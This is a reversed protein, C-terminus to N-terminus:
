MTVGAVEAGRSPEGVFVRSRQLRDVLRQRKMEGTREVRIQSGTHFDLELREMLKGDFFVNGLDRREAIDRRERRVLHDQLEIVLQYKRDDLQQHATGTRLLSNDAVQRLDFAFHHLINGRQKGPLRLAHPLNGINGQHRARTDLRREHMLGESEILFRRHELEADFQGAYGPGELEYERLLEQVDQHRLDLQVLGRFLRAHPAKGSRREALSNEITIEFDRHFQRRQPDCNAVQNSQLGPRYELETCRNAIGPHQGRAPLDQIFGNWHAIACLSRCLQASTHRCGFPFSDLCFSYRLWSFTRPGKQQSTRWNDPRIARM